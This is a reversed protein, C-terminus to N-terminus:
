ALETDKVEFNVNYPDFNTNIWDTDFEDEAAIIGNNQYRLNKQKM